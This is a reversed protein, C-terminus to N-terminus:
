QLIGLCKEPEPAFLSTIKIKEELNEEKIMEKLVSMFVGSGKVLHADALTEDLNKRCEFSGYWNGRCTYDVGCSPSGDVGVFGLM